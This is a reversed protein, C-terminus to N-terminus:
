RRRFNLTYASNLSTKSASDIAVYFRLPRSSPNRVTVADTREGRKTSRALPKGQLTKRSGPFVFLDADGFTTRVQVLARRHAPVLIRYVDVPDEVVDVSARMPGHPTGRWVYPDPTRFATGDIFAIDDNPELPDDLPTPAALANPINVLGFGTQPDYGPTAVDQASERLTDAVQGNTLGPKASWLWAAAGAVIPSAFSTGSDVTTGDPTGDTDLAIPTDLPVAEGPAAIDVAANRSSFSAPALTQTLAAVSLVHPWAAPYSPANGREFENGAAAVVLTGAGYAAEVVRFLTACQSSSGFSLNVVTAKANVVAVIGNAAASCTIQSPLGYNVLPVTPYIGIVGTGNAAASVASAVETGHSGTIAPPGNLIRTQAGLDPLTTDVFDDVVGVTVRPVPPAVTPQVVAGRAWGAPAADPVSHHVMTVDPEAYVLRGRRRLAAAFGNARDRPLVYTGALRLQRAGFRQAVKSVNAGPSTGILWTAPQSGAARPGAAPLAMPRVAYDPVTFAAAPACLAACGAVTAAMGILKRM